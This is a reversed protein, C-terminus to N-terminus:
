PQGFAKRVGPLMIYALILANLIFSIALESFTGGGTLLIAFNIALNFVSVVALFLWGQPDVRWLMQFLWFYVWAMLAWIIAAWLNFSRPGPNLLPPLIALAQLLGLIAIIFSLLVLIALVTIGFPRHRTQSAM